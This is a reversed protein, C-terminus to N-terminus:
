EGGGRKKRFNEGLNQLARELASQNESPASPSLPEIVIEGQLGENLSPEGTEPRPSGSREEKEKINYNYNAQANAQAGNNNRMAKPPTLSDALGPRLTRKFQTTQGGLSGAARKLVIRANAKGLEAQLETSTVRDGDIDFLSKIAKWTREWNPPHVRSARALVDPENPLTGDKSNWMACLMNIYAGVQSVTLHATDALFRAVYLPMWIPKCRKM